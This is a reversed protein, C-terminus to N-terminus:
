SRYLPAPFRGSASTPLLRGHATLDHMATAFGVLRDLGDHLSCTVVEAWIARGDGRLRWGESRHEGNRYAETLTRHPEGALRAPAPHLLTTDSGIVVGAIFGTLREATRGWSDIRGVADLTFVARSADPIVQSQAPPFVPEAEDRTTEEERLAILLSPRCHFDM